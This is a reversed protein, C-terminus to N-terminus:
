SIDMNSFNDIKTVSIKTDFYEEPLFDNSIVFITMNYKKSFTKLLDVVRYISDVDLSSFIEDLFLLNVTNHKLLILELIGLLVILNMKKQEGVSLSTSSIQIGLDTIIPNFDLDFEFAFKFELFKSTKLIKKNLLPIIQSMLMRKMGNDSLIQELTQSLLLTEQKGLLSTKSILIEAEIQDIITTLHTDSTKTSQKKLEVLERNALPLAADLKYFKTKSENQSSEITFYETELTKISTITTPILQEHNDKKILLKDKIQIHLEDTLDSLCHPCKNKSYIDLKKQIEGLNANIISQNNRAEKIQTNIATLKISFSSVELRNAEKEIILENIQNTIETIKTTNDLILESKLINLQINSSELLRQNSLISSEIPSIEAKIIKTEDKVIKGMDNIIELGFIKDIIQRKDSPNLKVFSKFDNVSLSITNAFVNFPIKTLEDEIFDDVRRKDPLNYDSSDISINSFNPELGREIEVLKGTETLFKVHTYANKNARNPIEKTMRIASKGYISVALADSISSKGSGNAGQVLILRPADDFKFTQLKNGYSCINRFSFELIKM